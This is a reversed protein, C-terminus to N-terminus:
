HISPNFISNFMPGSPSCTKHQVFLHLFKSDNNEGGSKILEGGNNEFSNFSVYKKKKVFALKRANM